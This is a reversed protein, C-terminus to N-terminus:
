GMASIAQQLREEFRRKYQLYHITQREESGTDPLLQSSIDIDTIYIPYSDSSTRRHLIHKAVEGFLEDGYQLSSFERDM